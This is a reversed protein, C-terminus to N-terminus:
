GGTLMGEERAGLQGGQQQPQPHLRQLLECAAQPQGAHLLNIIEQAQAVNDGSPKINLSHCYAAVARVINHLAATSADALLANYDGAEGGPGVSAGAPMGMRLNPPVGSGALAQEGSSALVGARATAVAPRQVKCPSVHDACDATKPVKSTTKCLGLSNAGPHPLVALPPRQYQQQLYSSTRQQPLGHQRASSHTAEHQPVAPPSAMGPVNRQQQQQQQQQQTPPPINEKMYVTESASPLKAAAAKTSCNNSSSNTRLSAFPLSAQKLQPQPQQQKQQPQLIHPPQRPLLAQKPSPAAPTPAVEPVTVAALKHPRSEPDAVDHHHPLALPSSRAPAMSLLILSADLESTQADGQQQQQQAGAAAASVAAPQQPTCAHRHQRKHLPQKSRSSNPHPLMRTTTTDTTTTTTPVIHEQLFAQMPESTLQQELSSGNVPEVDALDNGTHGGKSQLLEPGESRMPSAAAESHHGENGAACGDQQAHQAV